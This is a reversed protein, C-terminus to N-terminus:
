TRHACLGRPVDTCAEMAECNFLRIKLSLRVNGRDYLQSSYKRVSAWAAGIRRKIEIDLDASVNIASGLYVFETTQKYLQGAAEIRLTNSATYPHSWLHMAETKEGVSDTRIGSMRCSYRGDDQHACSAIDVGSGCRRCVVDGM